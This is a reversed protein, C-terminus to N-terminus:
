FPTTRSISKTKHGSRSRILLRKPRLPLRHQYCLYVFYIWLIFLPLVYFIVQELEPIIARCIKRSIRDKALEKNDM